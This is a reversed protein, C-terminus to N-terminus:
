VERSATEGHEPLGSLRGTLGTCILHGLFDGAEELEEPQPWKKGYLIQDRLRKALALEGSVRGNPAAETFVPELMEEAQIWRQMFWDVKGNKGFFSRTEDPSGFPDVRAVKIRAENYLKYYAPNALLIQDTIQQTLPPSSDDFSCRALVPELHPVAHLNADHLFQFLIDTRGIGPKLKAEPCTMRVYDYLFSALEYHNAFPQLELNIRKKVAEQLRQLAVEGARMLGNLEDLIAYEEQSLRGSTSKYVLDHEVEAWAHMLVSGVQLEVCQKPIGVDLEPCCGKVRLRYHRAAYGSFRQSYKIRPTQEEPFEKTREVVFHKHIMADVEEQDGPFFLAIRVGALDVIDEYIDAITRYERDKARSRAKSELSDPRKARYTVLARIGRRKLERECQNACIQALKEYLDVRRKYDEIFENIITM